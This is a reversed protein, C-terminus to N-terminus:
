RPASGRLTDLASDLLDAMEYCTAPRDAPDPALCRALLASVEPSAKTPAVTVPVPQGNPPLHPGHPVRGTITQHLTAALAYIDARADVSKADRFQEPAMYRLTGIVAGTQTMSQQPALKAVGFDTLKAAPRGNHQGLLINAPKIDRHVIGREHAYGVGRVLPTFMALARVESVRKRVKLLDLLSGDPAFETAIYYVGASHGVDIVRVLNPHDLAQQARGEGLFRERAESSELLWPHLLKIAVNAGSDSDAALYVSGAGGAGLNRGIVFRHGVTRGTWGHREGEEAMTEALADATELVAGCRKCEADTRLNDRGCVHCPNECEATVDTHSGLLRAPENTGGMCVALRASFWRFRGNAVRMRHRSEAGPRGEEIVSTLATGLAPLDDRHVRDFWADVADDDVRIGLTQRWNQDYSLRNNRLDWEFLLDGQRAWDAVREEWSLAKRRMRYRQVAMTVRRALRSSSLEHKAIYDDVGRGIWRNALDDDEMGTLILVPGSPAMLALLQPILSEPSADPLNLDVLAADFNGLRAATLGEAANRAWRVAVGPLQRRVILADIEEDEILLIEMDAIGSSAGM